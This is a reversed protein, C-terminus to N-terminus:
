PEQFGAKTLIDKGHTSALYSLFAQAGRPNPADRLAVIQSDDIALRSEAFEVTDVTAASARSDTRYVLAADARGAAVQTLAARGDPQRTASRPTVGVAALVAKAAAGCPAQAACLVVTTGARALDALSGIRKPNGPRVAIVLQNRAFVTPAGAAKAADTVANMTSANAAAFADAPAGQGLQHALVSSGAFTFVVKTGPYTGEFDKGLATFAGALSADAFIAIPGTPRQVGSPGAGSGGTTDRPAGPCGTLTLLCIVAGAVAALRSRHSAVAALRSAVTTLRSAVTTLRSAVATLRSRRGRSVWM